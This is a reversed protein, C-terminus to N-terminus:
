PCLLSIFEPRHPKKKPSYITFTSGPSSSTPDTGLCITSLLHQQTRLTGGM